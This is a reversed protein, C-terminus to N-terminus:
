RPSDDAPDATYFLCPTVRARKGDGLSARATGGRPTSQIPTPRVQVRSGLDGSNDDHVGALALELLAAEDMDAAPADGIETFTHDAPLPTTRRPASSAGGSCAAAVVVGVALVAVPLLSLNLRRARLSM